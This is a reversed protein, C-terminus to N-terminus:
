ALFGNLFLAAERDSMSDYGIYGAPPMGLDLASVADVFFLGWQVTRIPSRLGSAFNKQVHCVGNIGFRCPLSLSIQPDKFCWLASVRPSPSKAGISM